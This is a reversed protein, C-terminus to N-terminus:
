PPMSCCGRCRSTTKASRSPAPSAPPPPAAAWRWCGTPACQSSAAPRPRGAAQAPAAGTSVLVREALGRAAASTSPVPLVAILRDIVPRTSGKWLTDPLGGSREDVLGVGDVNLAPTDSIIIEPKAEGRAPEEAAAPAVVPAPLPAEPPREAGLRPPSLRIPGQQAAVEGACAALILAAGALGFRSARCATM